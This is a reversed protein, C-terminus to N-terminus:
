RMTDEIKSVNDKLTISKDTYEANKLKKVVIQKISILQDVSEKQLLIENNTEDIKKELKRNNLLFSISNLM